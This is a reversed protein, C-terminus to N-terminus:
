PSGASLHCLGEQCGAVPPCDADTLCEPLCLTSGDSGDNSQCQSGAMCPRTDFCLSWPEGQDFYGHGGSSSPLSCVMGSPSALDVTGIERNADTQSCVNGVLHLQSVPEDMALDVHYDYTCQGCPVIGCDGATLILTPSSEDTAWVGQWQPQFSGFCGHEANIVDIGLTGDPRTDWIVCRLLGLEPYDATVPYPDGVSQDCASGVMAGLVDVQVSPGEGGSGGGAVAPESGDGEGGLGGEGAAAAPAGAEAEIPAAGSSGGGAVVRAGGDGAGGEGGLGGEGAAAAPAGAEARGGAGADGAPEVSGKNSTSCAVLALVWAVGVVYGGMGARQYDVM